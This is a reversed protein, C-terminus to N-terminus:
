ISTMDKTRKLMVQMMSANKKLKKQTLKKLRFWMNPKISLKSKHEM